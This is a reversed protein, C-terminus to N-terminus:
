PRTVNRYAPVQWENSGDAFSLGAPLTRTETAEVADYTADSGNGLPSAIGNNIHTMARNFAFPDSRDAAAYRRAADIYRARRTNM